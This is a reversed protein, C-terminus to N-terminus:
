YLDDSKLNLYRQTAFFTSISTIILGLILIGASVAVLPLYNEKPNLDLDPFRNDIYFVLIILAVIAIFSGILGLRISHKIFPRRIFSKTAGVMQMTKITFRSSFILLRLSSNILLMSIFTLVTTIILAWKTIKTVNNNVLDVLERDYILEKVGKSNILEKEIKAISDSAVYDGKLHMDFSDQLPNYGIFQIFDEGLDEKHQTAASDKSIFNYNKIYTAKGLKKDLNDIETQSVKKNLFITMPINERFKDSIRKSNLVFLSLTGLIFLVLTISFIVSFYSSILKRKQYKEYRNTM